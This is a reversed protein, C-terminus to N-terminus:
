RSRYRTLADLATQARHSVGAEMFTLDVAEDGMVGARYRAYVGEGIVALRFASLAVYFDLDDLPLGSREAYRSTFVEVPPMGPPDAWWMAVYGVDALPDGLTCLEWDLVAAVKGAVPDTICNGVRYDGHAIATRRQEPVDQGLLAAVEDIAPLDRTKSAEWQATWRKIQRQVYGDHKALTTLGTAELDVAHLAALVDALDLALSQRADDTLAAIQEGTTIVIGEVLDMVYFAAGNVSEDDCAALVPPVPVGTGQLGSLIRHERLVDHATALVHGLPPRRLVVKRGNADTIRFTLNSRGGAILEYTLPDSLGGVHELLWPTVKEEDIGKPM